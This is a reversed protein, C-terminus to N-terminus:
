KLRYVCEPERYRQIATITQRVLNMFAEVDDAKRNAGWKRYKFTANQLRKLGKGVKKNEILFMGYLEEALAEENLFRHDHASVVAAQYSIDAMDIRNTM